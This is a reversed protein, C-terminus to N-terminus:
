VRNCHVYRTRDEILEFGSFFHWPTLQRSLLCILALILWAVIMDVIDIKLCIMVYDIMVWKGSIMTDLEVMVFLISLDNLQRFLFILILYVMKWREWWMRKGNPCRKKIEIKEREPCRKWNLRKGKQADKENWDNPAIECQGIRMEYNLMHKWDCRKEQNVM